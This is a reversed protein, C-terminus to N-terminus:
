NEAHSHKSIFKKVSEDVTAVKARKVIEVVLSEFNCYSNTVPVREREKFFYRKPLKDTSRHLTINEGIHIHLNSFQGTIKKIDEWKFSYSTKKFLRYHCTIGQDNLVVKQSYLCMKVLVLMALVGFEALILDDSVSKGKVFILYIDLFVFLGIMMLAIYTFTEFFRSPYVKEM